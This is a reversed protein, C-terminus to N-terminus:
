LEWDNDDFFNDLSDLGGHFNAVDYGEDYLKEWIDDIIIEARKLREAQEDFKKSLSEPYYPCDKHHRKEGGYFTQCGPVCKKDEM